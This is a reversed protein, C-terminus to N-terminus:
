QRKYAPNKRKIYNNYMLKVKTDCYSFVYYSFFKNEAPGSQQM